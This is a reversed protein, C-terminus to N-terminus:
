FLLAGGAVGVALGIIGFLLRSKKLGVISIEAKELEIDCELWKQKYRDYGINLDSITSDKKVIIECLKMNKKKLITIISDALILEKAKNKATEYQSDKLVWFLTDIRDPATFTEGPKVPHPFVIEQAPASFPLLCFLLLLIWGNKM